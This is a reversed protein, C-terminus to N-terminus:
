RITPMLASADAILVRRLEEVLQPRNKVLDISVDIYEARIRKNEDDALCYRKSSVGDIKPYLPISDPSDFRQAYAYLQYLDAQAVGNRADEKDSKPRKWKTDLVLVARGDPGDVVIDPKLRFRKAGEDTKLLWRSKGAAQIHISHHDLGLQDSYRQIFRAVFEEFLTEMPFLLSFSSDEGAAPAPTSGALVLRAFDLLPEFRDNNRNLRVRQFDCAEVACTEVDALLLIAERLRQQTEVLRSVTLLRVCTAKLIRNLWTDPIFEEFGVYSRQRQAANHRIHQSLLIKGRIFCGNEERYVYSHDLGRRLEDLMRQAFVRVLAELLPMKKLRLSALERPLIPIKRTLSLMYLLNSQALGRKLDGQASTTEHSLPLSDIKPLIEVQLGPIQIVGVYNRAAVYDLHDWDFICDGSVRAHQKDFARLRGLLRKPWDSRSFHGYEILPLRKM